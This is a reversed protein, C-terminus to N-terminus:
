HFIYPSSAKLIPIGYLPAALVTASGAFGALYSARAALLGAAAAAAAVVLGTASLLTRRRRRTKTGAEAAPSDLSHDQRLIAQELRQLVQGPEIGLDEILKKRTESYVRLAEAQRGSRYLALMLQARLRERVPHKAILSELEAGLAHHQGLALDADIREELATLRLEELREIEVRAFSEYAFDALAAGRWLGLAERLAMSAQQPMGDANARRGQELLHEFRRVDIQEPDVQLLYGGPRTVLLESQELVKRLRSVQHDLSHAATGPLREGWLEDILRDRSVVENAHLLLVALLARQKSGGVPVVRGGELVELPGLLRFEM